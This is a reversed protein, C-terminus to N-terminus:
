AGSVGTLLAGESTSPRIDRESTEDGGCISSLGLEREVTRALLGPVAIADPPFRLLLMSGCGFLTSDPIAAAIELLGGMVDVLDDLVFEVAVAAAAAAM